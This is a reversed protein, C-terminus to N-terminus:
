TEHLFMLSRLSNYRQRRAVEDVITKDKLIKLLRVQHKLGEFTLDTDDLMRELADIDTCAIAAVQLHEEFTEQLTAYTEAVGPEDMETLPRDRDEPSFNAIRYIREALTSMNTEM